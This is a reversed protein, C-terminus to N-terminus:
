LCQVVMSRAVLDAPHRQDKRILVALIYLAVLAISLSLCILSFPSNFGDYIGNITSMHGLQWPLFKLTNRIISGWLPNGDYIVRLNVRQKGWSAFNKTGEMISFIIIIPVVSSFATILQMQINSFEPIGSFFIQYVTLAAILLVVLYASILLWDFLLAKFRLSRSAPKPDPPITM